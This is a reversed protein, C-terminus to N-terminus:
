NSKFHGHLLCLIHVDVTLIVFSRSQHFSFLHLVGVCICHVCRFLNQCHAILLHVFIFGFGLSLTVINSHLFRKGESNNVVYAVLLCSTRHPFLRM